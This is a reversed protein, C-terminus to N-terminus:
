TYPVLFPAVLVGIIASIIGPLGTQYAVFASSVVGFILSFWAFASLLIAKTTYVIHKRKEINSFDTTRHYWSMYEFPYYENAQLMYILARVYNPHYRTWLNKFFQKM